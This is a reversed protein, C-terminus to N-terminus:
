GSIELSDGVYVYLMPRVHQTENTMGTAELELWVGPINTPSVRAREAGDEDHLMLSAESSLLHRTLESEPVSALFETSARAQRALEAEFSQVGLSVILTRFAEAMTPDALSREEFQVM